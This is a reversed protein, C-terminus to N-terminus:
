YRAMTREGPQPAMTHKSAGDGLEGGLDLRQSACACVSPPLADGKPTRLRVRACGSASIRRHSCVPLRFAAGGSQYKVTTRAAGLFGVLAGGKVMSDETSLACPQTTAKKRGAQLEGGLTEWRCVCTLALMLRHVRQGSACVRALVSASVGWGTVDDQKAGDGLYWEGGNLRIGALPRAKRHWILFGLHM